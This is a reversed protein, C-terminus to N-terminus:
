SIPCKSLSISIIGSTRIIRATVQPLYLYEKKQSKHLKKINSALEPDNPLM